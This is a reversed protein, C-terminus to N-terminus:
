KSNPFPKLKYKKLLDRLPPVSYKAREEDTTKPDIPAWVEEGTVEDPVRQTGYKQYGETYLSYRDYTAATMYRSSKDGSEFASKALQYALFYNEPSISALKGNCFTLATHQLILSANFKDTSTKIQGNALLTMVIARHQKDIPEMEVVTDSQRMQQDMRVLEKLQMNDSLGTSTTKNLVKCGTLIVAMCFIFYFLNASLKIRTMM